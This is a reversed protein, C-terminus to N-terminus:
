ITLAFDKAFFKKADRCSVKTCMPCQLGLQPSTKRGDKLHNHVLDAMAEIFLPSDNLSEVRRVGQMGWKSKAEELYELDLEFLTEIHDSTFAIPVLLVNDLKKKGLSELVDSTQPGMWARPGVKSQWSLRYPNSNGLEAMVANVTAAVEHVYPDGREVVTMPLSHASFLLIVKSRVEAPYQELGARIRDAFAKVLGRHTPWRDIVSWDLEGKPDLEKLQRYLENLSSGTTSCSYQPYQTFAVARKFGADQIAKVADDTMPSAYRFGIFSKHPATAPSLQDLLEDMARGQKETWMKIPSGGGIQAYQDQIKPTRRKAIIPALKDQFPIPILDPDSFLSQLFPYVADLTEPGGLNMLLIATGKSNDTVAMSSSPATATAAQTAMSRATWASSQRMLMSSLQRHLM